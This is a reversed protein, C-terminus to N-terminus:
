NPNVLGRWRGRGVNEILAKAKMRHLHTRFTNEKLAFSALCAIEFLQKSKLPKTSESLALLVRQEVLVRSASNKRNVDRLYHGEWRAKILQRRLADREATLEKLRLEIEEIERLLRREYFGPPGETDEPLTENGIKCCFARM